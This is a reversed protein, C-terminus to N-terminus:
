LRLTTKKRNVFRGVFSELTESEEDNQWRPSPRFHEPSLKGPDVPEVGMSSIGMRALEKLLRGQYKSTICVTGSFGHSIAWALNIAEHKGRPPLWAVRPFINNQTLIAIHKVQESPFALLMQENSIMARMYSYYPSAGLSSKVEINRGVSRIIRRQTYETGPFVITRVRGKEWLSTIAGNILGCDGGSGSLKVFCLAPEDIWEQFPLQEREIHKFAKGPDVPQILHVHKLKLVNRYVDLAEKNWLLYHIKKHVESLKSDASLKGSVDSSVLITPIDGICGVSEEAMMSQPTIFSVAHPYARFMKTISRRLEWRLPLVKLSYRERESASIYDMTRMTSSSMGVHFRRGLYVFPGNPYLDIGQFGSQELHAILARCDVINGEGILPAGSIFLKQRDSNVMM